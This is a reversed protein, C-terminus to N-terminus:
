RRVEVPFWRAQRQAGGDRGGAAGKEYRVIGDKVLKALQRRTKAKDADTNSHYVALAVETLSAGKAGAAMVVRLADTTADGLTSVGRAHCHQVHLPGVVDLPQKLHRLEVTTGGAQGKVLLVSGMGATLWTSGYVDDLKEPARNGAQSKRTHHLVLIELGRAILEQFAINIVAGTDDDSIGPALDKLSDVVLVRAKGHDEQVWDALASPRKTVNVHVLPGRWVALSRELRRRDSESVMRRFSRQAQRPRDLALYLVQERAALPRLPLGLLEDRRVGILALVIQQALTTKGVGQSGAIMLGEGPSWLSEAGRGWLPEESDEYADFVFAGGTLARNAGAEGRAPQGVGTM